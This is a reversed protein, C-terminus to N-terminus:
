SCSQLRSICMIVPIPIPVYSYPMSSHLYAHIHCPIILTTHIFTTHIFTTHIFTTHILSTHILSTHIFTTHIFTTHILSTHIFTTHAVASIDIGVCAWPQSPPPISYISCRRVHFTVGRKLLASFIVLVLPLIENFMRSYNDVVHQRNHTNHKYCMMHPLNSLCLLVM